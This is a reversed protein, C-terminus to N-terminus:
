SVFFDKSRTARRAFQNHWIGKFYIANVLTLVTLSNFVGEPILNKINEKTKKDVWDNVEKRAGEPHNQYDVLALEANYFQKTGDLFEPEITLSKHM